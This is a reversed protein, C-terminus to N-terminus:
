FFIQAMFTITVNEVTGLSKSFFQIFHFNFSELSDLRSFKYSGWSCGSSRLSKSDSLGLYFVVLSLRVPLIIIIIIVMFVQLTSNVAPPLLNGSAFIWLPTKWPSARDGKSNMIAMIGSLWLSLFHVALYSSLLDCSFTLWKIYMSSMLSNAFFSFSSSVRICVTLIYLRSMPISNPMSFHAISTIFLPLRCSVSPISSSFCSLFLFM